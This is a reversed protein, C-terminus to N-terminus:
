NVGDSLSLSRSLSLLPSVRGRLKVSLVSRHQVREWPLALLMKLKVLRKRWGTLPEFEFDGSPYDDCAVADYQQQQSSSSSSSHFRLHLPTLPQPHSFFSVFSSRCQFQLPTTTTSPPLTYTFHHIANAISSHTHRHRYAHLLVKKWM